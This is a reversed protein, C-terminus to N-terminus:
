ATSAKNELWFAWFRWGPGPGFLAGLLALVAVFGVDFLNNM